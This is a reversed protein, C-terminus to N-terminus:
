RHSEDIIRWVGSDGADGAGPPALVPLVNPLVEITYRHAPDSILEGDHEFTLPRGDTRELVIRRGRAYTVEPRQVHGGDATLGPLERADLEGSVVCVDLLGDDLVSHPLVKFQGGRYRGGGVNALVVTGDHVVEGDVLVRGRYPAFTRLTAAVAERYRDRGALEPLLAATVLAEAVLGSCAGLLVLTDTERIWAMDVRRVSPQETTLAATLMEQWPLDSWIERYFSNGTGGPINVMHPLGTGTRERGARALGAAVERTTGDGGLVVVLDVDRACSRAVEEAHGARATHVISMEPVLSACQAAVAEILAQDGRGATPNAILMGRHPWPGASM